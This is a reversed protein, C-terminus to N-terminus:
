NMGVFLIQFPIPLNQMNYFIVFNIKKIGVIALVLLKKMLDNQRIVDFTKKWLQNFDIGDANKWTGYPENWIELGYWNTLGSAKKDRIIRTIENLWNNM